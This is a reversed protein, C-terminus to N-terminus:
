QLQGFALGSETRLKSFSLLKRSHSKFYIFLYIFYVGVLFGCCSPLNLPLPERVRAGYVLAAARTVGQLVTPHSCFDREPLM